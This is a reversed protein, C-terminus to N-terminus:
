TYGWLVAWLGSPVKDYNDPCIISESQHLFEDVEDFTYGWLVAWLGLPLNM